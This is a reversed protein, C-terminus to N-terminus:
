AQERIRRLFSLFYPGLSSGFRPNIEIIYPQGSLEKYNFCCLGEFDIAKLMDAFLDLYPCPVMKRYLSKVQGKIPAENDFGYKINLSAIIRGEKFIIHTAFETPGAIMQQCFFGPAGILGRHEDEQEKNTIIFCDKGTDSISRKLVYPYPLDNSITPLYKGFGKEKLVQYFEYKDDCLDVASVNPIPLANNIPGVSSLFKVDPIGIPVLLDKGKISEETFDDFYLRHGSRRFGMNIPQHLDPKNSFLINMRPKFSFISRLLEGAFFVSKYALSQLYQTKNILTRGSFSM